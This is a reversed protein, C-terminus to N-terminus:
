ETPDAVGIQISQGPKLRRTYLLERDPRDLWRAVARAALLAGVLTLLTNGGRLGRSLLQAGTKM